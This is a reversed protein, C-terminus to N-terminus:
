VLNNQATQLSTSHKYELNLEKGIQVIQHWSTKVGLRTKVIRSWYDVTQIFDRLKPSWPDGGTFKKRIGKAAQRRLRDLLDHLNNYTSIITSKLTLDGRLFKDGLLRLKKVKSKISHTECLKRCRDQYLKRQRPDNSILDTLVLKPTDGLTGSLVSSTRIRIWGLRHDSKWALPADFAMFGASTVDVGSTVFIGDITKQETNRNYTEPPSLPLHQRSIAEVLGVERMREVFTSQEVSCNADMGLVIQDGM